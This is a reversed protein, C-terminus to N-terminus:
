KPERVKSRSMTVKVNVKSTVEFNGSGFTIDIGFPLVTCKSHKALIESKKCLVVQIM